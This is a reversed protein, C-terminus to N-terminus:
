KKEQKKHGYKYPCAHEAKKIAVTICVVLLSITFFIVYILSSIRFFCIFTELIDLIPSGGCWGHSKRMNEGNLWWDNQPLGIIPVGQDGMIIGFSTGIERNFDDGLPIGTSGMSVWFAIGYPPKRLWLAVGLGDDVNPRTKGLLFWGAIPTGGNISVGMYHNEASFWKNKEASAAEVNSRPVVQLQERVVAVELFPSQLNWWFVDSIEVSKM